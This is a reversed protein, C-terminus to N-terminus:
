RPMHQFGRGRLPRGTIVEVLLLGLSFIDTASTCRGGLLQEPAAYKPTGCRATITSARLIGSLGVDCIKATALHADVLVNSCLCLGLASHLRPGPPPLHPPIWGVEQTWSTGERAHTSRCSPPLM